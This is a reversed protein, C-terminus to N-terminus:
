IEKTNRKRHKLEFLDESLKAILNDKEKDTQKM